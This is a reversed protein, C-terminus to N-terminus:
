LVNIMVLMFSLVKGYITRLHKLAQRVYSKFTGLPVGMVKHAERHTLGKFYVLEIANKHHTDLTAIAGKLQFSSQNKATTEEESEYVSFDDTQILVDKKRLVNLTKNRAIRYVWTYFRGKNPDYNECKNWVTLFTEQLLDQAKGEDNIMKLIVFYIANSYKDYLVSLAREDKSKLQNILTTDNQM